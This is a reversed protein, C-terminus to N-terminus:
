PPCVTRAIIGLAEPDWLLGTHTTDVVHWELGPRDVLPAPPDDRRHGHRAAFAAIPVGPVRDPVWTALRTWDRELAGAGLRARWAFGSGTVEADIARRLSRSLGGVPLRGTEIGEAVLRDRHAYSGRLRRIGPDLRAAHDIWDGGNSERPAAPGDLLVIRGISGPHDLATQWAIVAGTGHGILTCSRGTSRLLEALDDVHDELSEAAPLGHADGRGRLDPALLHVRGDCEDALPGFWRGNATLDHIGVATPAGTDGPFDHVPLPPEGM